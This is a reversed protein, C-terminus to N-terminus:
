YSLLSETARLSALNGAVDHVRHLMVNKQRALATFAHTPADRLHTEPCNSLKSLFSKRSLGLLLPSGPPALDGLHSILTLNHTLTKGFGIGPDFCLRSPDIGLSTLTHLRELFYARIEALIDQYDPNEQMDAPTGQMHMIVIGCNSTACLAAMDPDAILGSVDNIIDAGAELAVRAVAAKQTDISILGDWENRIASIIPATRRIEEEPSVPLSGPRTSEGGIDIICTGEAIMKRAQHLATELSDFQGGDSFSDPTTNLIGMIQSNETLDLSTRSTKWIM